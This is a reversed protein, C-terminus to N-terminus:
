ETRVYLTLTCPVGGEGELTWTAAEKLKPVPPSANGGATNVLWTRPPPEGRWGEERWIVERAELTAIHSLHGKRPFRPVECRVDLAEIGAELAYYRLLNVEWREGVLVLDGAAHQDKLVGAVAALPAPQGPLREWFRGLGYLCLGAMVIGLLWRELLRPLRTLCAGCLGLFFFHSFAMYRGYLIPRGSVLSFGLALGWPVAAQTLFFRAAWDGRVAVWVLALGGLVLFLSRELGAPAEWGTTWRLALAEFGLATVSPIWYGERVEAVQALLVPVWPGYLVAAIALALLYGAVTAKTERSDRTRAHVLLDMGVFVGQAAVSFLAYYHTYCFAATAVGYSGWWVRWRRRARLARLLLWATLGALLVGLAYMRAQVAPIIQSVHITLLLASFLAGARVGSVSGKPDVLRHYCAESGVAYLLPVCLVGCCLSLGRLSAISAGLLAAWAKLLLFYLPPHVNVGTRFLLDKNPYQILRWSSGEDNTLAETLAPLRATLAVGSLLSIGVIWPWRSMRLVMKILACKQL